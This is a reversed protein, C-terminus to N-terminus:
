IYLIRFIGGIKKKKLSNFWSLLTAPCLILMCFDSKNRYVLLLSDSFFLFVIWNVVAGLVCVGVFKPIFKILSTLSRVSFVIFCQHFSNLFISIFTLTNWIWLSSSTTSNSHGYQGFRYVSFGTLFAVADKVTMFLGLIWLWLLSYITLVIKLFSFLVPSMVSGLKLSYQLGATILITHQQCLFFLCMSWHFLNSNIKSPALFIYHLFFLRKM